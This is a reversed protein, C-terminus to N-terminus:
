GSLMSEPAPGSLRRFKPNDEIAGMAADVQDIEDAEVEGSGARGEIERETSGGSGRDACEVPKCAM